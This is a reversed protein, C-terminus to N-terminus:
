NFFIGFVMVDLFIGFSGDGVFVGIFVFLCEGIRDDGIFVLDFESLGFLIFEIFFFYNFFYKILIKFVYNIM